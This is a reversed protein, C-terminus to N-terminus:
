GPSPLRPNRGGRLLRPGRAGTATTAGQRRLRAANISYGTTNKIRYKEKILAMLGADAQVRRAISALGELLTNHSLEFAAVSAPDATDLVTGDVLVIRLDAM